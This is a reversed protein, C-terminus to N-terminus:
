WKELDDLFEEKSAAVTDGSEIEKWAAEVEKLTAIDDNLMSGEIKKLLLIDGRPHTVAFVSGADIRMDKRLKAPIILRGNSSVKVMDPVGKIKANMKM